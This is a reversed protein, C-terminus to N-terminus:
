HQKQKYTKADAYERLVKNITNLVKKKDATWLPYILLSKPADGTIRHVTIDHPLLAILEAILKAYAELSYCSLQMGDSLRILPTDYDIAEVTTFAKVNETEITQKVLKHESSASANLSYESIDADNQDIRNMILEEPLREALATGKLVHLLQLKIGDIHSGDPATLCSLYRVTEATRSAGEGPLGIIVHVIVKLGAAKLRIFTDEFVKLPYCRNIYAATDEHITQLGLEIYVPKLRNLKSLESLMNDSISDPRTAVSLALVEPHAIAKNFCDILYAEDGYTETFSQFYAMYGAFNRSLKRSVREKAQEIQMDIDPVNEAFDGSGGASCFICGGTGCRGDRNPCTHSASLALRYVKGGFSEKMEDDFSRYYESM